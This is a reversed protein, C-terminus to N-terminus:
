LFLGRKRESQPLQNYADRLCLDGHATGSKGNKLILTDLEMFRRQAKWLHYYEYVKTQTLGLEIALDNLFKNKDLLVDELEITRKNNMAQKIQAQSLEMAKDLVRQVRKKRSEIQGRASM